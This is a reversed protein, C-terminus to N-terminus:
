VYRDDLLFVTGWDKNHRIVRGICQNVARSASQVYWRQGSQGAGTSAQSVRQQSQQSQQQRRAVEEAREKAYTAYLDQPDVAQVPRSTGSTVGATFSSSVASHTYGSSKTLTSCGSPAGSPASQATALQQTPVSIGGNQIRQAANQWMNVPAASPLASQYGTGTGARSTACSAHQQPRVNAAMAATTPTIVTMATYGQQQKSTNPQAKQAVFIACKEDLYQKKLIVWPDM